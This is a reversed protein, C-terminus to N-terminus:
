LTVLLSVQVATHIANMRAYRGSILPLNRKRVDEAYNEKLYSYPKYDVTASDAMVYQHETDQALTLVNLVSSAVAAIGADDYNVGNGDNGEGLLQYIRSQVNFRIWDDKIKQDLFAENSATTGMFLRAEGSVKTYVNIGGDVFDNYQDVTYADPTVGKCKKHAFTGRASDSACRLAVIAVNLFEKSTGHTEDHAFIAVRDCGHNKLGVAVTKSVQIEAVKKADALWAQLGTTSDTLLSLAFEADNSAVVVHYFDFNEAATKVANLITSNAAGQALPICVVRSPQADQSFFTMAMAYLESDAGYIEAVRKASATEYADNSGVGATVEAVASSGFVINEDLSKVSIEAGVYGTAKATLTLKTTNDSATFILSGTTEDNVASVLDDIVDAVTDSASSTIEFKEDGINLTIKKSGEAGSAGSKLAPTVDVIRTAFTGNRGVIAVTNVDVTTVSSIADQISIKVIQDIIEAM